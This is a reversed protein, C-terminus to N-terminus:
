AVGVIVGKGERTARSLFDSVQQMQWADHNVEAFRQSLGAIVAPAFYMPSGYNWGYEEHLAEGHFLEYLPHKADEAWSEIDRYDLEDYSDLTLDFGKDELGNGIENLLEGESEVIRHHLDPLVKIFVVQM